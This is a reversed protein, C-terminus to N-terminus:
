SEKKALEAKLEKRAKESWGILEFIYGWSEKDGAWKGEDYIPWQKIKGLVAGRWEELKNLKAQQQEIINCATHIVSELTSPRESLDTIPINDFAEKPPICSRALETFETPEPAQREKLKAIAEKVGPSITWVDNVLYEEKELLAIVEKIEDSPKLQKTFERLKALAHDVYKLCDDADSSEMFASTKLLNEALELKVIIKDIKQM